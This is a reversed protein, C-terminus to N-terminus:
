ESPPTQGVARRLGEYPDTKQREARQREANQQEERAVEEARKKTAEPDLVIYSKRGSIWWLEGSQSDLRYIAGDRTSVLQYRPESQCSLALLLFLVLALARM